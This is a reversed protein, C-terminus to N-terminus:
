LIESTVDASTVSDGPSHHLEPTQESNDNTKDVSGERAANWHGGITQKRKAIFLKLEEGACVDKLTRYSSTEQIFLCEM